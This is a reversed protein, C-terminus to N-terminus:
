EIPLSITVKTCNNFGAHKCNEIQIKGKMSETIIKHTM